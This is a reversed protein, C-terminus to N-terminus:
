LAYTKVIHIDIEDMAVDMDRGYSLTECFSHIKTQSLGDADGVLVFVHDLHCIFQGFVSDRKRGVLIFDADQSAVQFGVAKDFRRTIPM